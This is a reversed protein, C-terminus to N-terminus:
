HYRLKDCSFGVKGQKIKAVGIAFTKYEEESHAKEGLVASSEARLQLESLAM